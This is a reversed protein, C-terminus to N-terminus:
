SIWPPLIDHGERFLCSRYSLVSLLLLLQEGVVEDRTQKRRRTLLALCAGMHVPPFGKSECHPTMGSDVVRQLPNSGWLTVSFVFPEGPLARGISECHPEKMTGYRKTPGGSTSLLDIDYHAHLSM